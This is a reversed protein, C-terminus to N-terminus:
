QEPAGSKLYMRRVDRLWKHGRGAAKAAACQALLHEALLIRVGRAFSSAAASATTALRALTDREARSTM